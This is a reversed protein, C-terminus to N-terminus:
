HILAGNIYSSASETATYVPTVLLYTVRNSPHYKLKLNVFFLCMFFFLNILIFNFMLKLATFDDIVTNFDM